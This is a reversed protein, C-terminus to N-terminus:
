SVDEDRGGEKSGDAGRLAERAARRAEEVFARMKPGDKIGPAAEVGSAVDVGWPRAARVADAVNEPALGGALIVRRARCLPEVLRPDVRVGTGGRKGPVRADVLLPEGPLAGAKAADEADGVCVAKFARLGLARVLEPPEDGHLQIRDLGVDADIEGIKAEDEDAFVGVIVVRGRVADAIARALRTDVRRPSGVVFNLGIMDAGAATALEADEIRTIGCIKVCLEGPAGTV